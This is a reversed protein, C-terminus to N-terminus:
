GRKRKGLIVGGAGRAAGAVSQWLHGIVLTQSVGIDSM